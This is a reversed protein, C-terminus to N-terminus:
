AYPKVLKSFIRWRKKAQKKDYTKSIVKKEPLAMKVIPLFLGEAVM